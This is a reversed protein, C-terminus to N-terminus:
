KVLNMTAVALAVFETNYISM